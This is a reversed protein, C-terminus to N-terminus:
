DCTKARIADVDADGGEEGGDSGGAGCNEGGGGGGGGLRSCRTGSAASAPSNTAAM